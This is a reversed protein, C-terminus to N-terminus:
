CTPISGGDLLKGAMREIDVRENTGLKQAARTFANIIGFKNDLPESAHALVTADSQEQALGHSKALRKIVEAPSEIKEEYTAAFKVLLDAGSELAKGVAEVARNKLEAASLWIHRAKLSDEATVVLDNTCAQRYVFPEVSVSRCGVESNGFMFGVHLLKGGNAPDPRSLDPCLIKGWIGKDDLHFSRIDHTFGAGISAVMETIDCNNITSYKGSLFARLANAKCRLLFESSQHEGLHHNFLKGQMSTPLTHIYRAPMGMRGCLQGFAHDTLDLREDVVQDGESRAVQLRADQDVVFDCGKRKVDWKGTDDDKVMELVEDWTRTLM